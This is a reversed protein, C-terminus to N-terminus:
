HLAAALRRRHERALDSDAGLETFIAVMVRRILDRRDSDDTTAFADQLRELATAQDGEDWAAFAEALDGAGGGNGNASSLQARAALGDILFDGQFGEFLRTAEDSDGRELLMRGLRAAAETHRPDLELAARLSEEDGAGALRDAKSPVLQNLWEEIRAPPIAGTFEAVVQGDRFAKVAPIGRIDFSAAISPNADTDLKALEIEGERKRIASELAPTLQRCPGCWEAWFDVVVPLERSREVVDSMFTAESVDKIV